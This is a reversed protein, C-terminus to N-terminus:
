AVEETLQELAAGWASRRVGIRRPSIRIIPLKHRWNRRWTAMSIDADQCMAEPSMVPDLEVRQPGESM